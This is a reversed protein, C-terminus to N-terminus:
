IQSEVISHIRRDARAPICLINAGIDSDAFGDIPVLRHQLEEIKFFSYDAGESIFRILDNPIYGFHRSQELAMEMVIIPPVDQEFLKKGGQLLGLEGGEVDVKIFHVTDIRRSSLYADLTITTCQFSSGGLFKKALSAHGSPQDDSLNVEAVSEKESLALQNLVVSSRDPLLETNVVLESFTKPVPEFAHVSGNLGVRHAMLTTYWGFNAGADICVDGESVLKEVLHTIYPEYEGFFFVTEQMGTALDISFKRGDRVRSVLGKPFERFLSLALLLLRSKGKRIPFNYTYLRVLKLFAAGLHNPLSYSHAEDAGLM